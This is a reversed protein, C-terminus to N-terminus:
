QKRGGPCYSLLTFLTCAKKCCESAIGSRRLRNYMPTEYVPLVDNFEDGEDSAGQITIVGEPENTTYSLGAATLEELVIDWASSGRKIKNSDLMKIESVRSCWWSLASSLAGSCVRISDPIKDRSLDDATVSLVVLLLVCSMLPVHVMQGSFGSIYISQQCSADKLINSRCSFAFCWSLSM